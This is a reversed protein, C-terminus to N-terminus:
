PAKRPPAFKIREVLRVVENSNDRYGTVATIAEIVYEYQLNYDIDIEVEPGSEGSPGSEGGTLQLIYGRLAQFDNQFSRNDNVTINALEGEADAQLRLKIPLDMNEDVAGGGTNALPMRVSFDGEQAAIKLTTVFFILLLFVVDIMSTLQLEARDSGSKKKMRM